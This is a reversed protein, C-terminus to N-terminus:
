ICIVSILSKAVSLVTYNDMISDLIVALSTMAQMTRTWQCPGLACASAIVQMPIITYMNQLGKRISLLCTRLARERRRTYTARLNENLELCSRYPLNVERVWNSVMGPSRMGVPVTCISFHKRRSPRSHLAETSPSCMLRLTAHQIRFCVMCRM